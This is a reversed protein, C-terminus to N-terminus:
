RETQWDDHPASTAPEKKPNKLLEIVELEKKLSPDGIAQMESQFKRGFLAFVNRYGPSVQLPCSKREWTKIYVRDPRDEPNMTCTRYFPIPLPTVADNCVARADLLWNKILTVYETLLIGKRISLDDFYYGAKFRAEKSVSYAKGSSDKYTATLKFPTTTSDAKKPKLKVVIISGKSGNADTPSPFLTNVYLLRGTSRNAEPSGYVGEIEFAESDLALQLDFVLPSVMYDFEEDLRKKFSEASHISYYNAGRTKSVREVLDTNFDVGVGIFTTYIGRKAAKDVMGFLGKESLEGRNPMADTIFIIRNDYIQSDKLAEGYSEFLKVGERYGASWDTGGRPELALIHKKIADMDTLAVKRLPKALYATSDFLVVGLSDDARLHSVMAALSERAIAMKSRSDKEVKTGRGKGYYYQNFPASMSGSIDLVVVINRKRKTFYDPKVNSELAVSLYYEQEDTFLNKQRATSYSPCFLAECRKVSSPPQFYHRYFVGEYTISEYKPLYGNKLNDYFTNTDKAGGVALGLSQTVPMAAPAFTPMVMKKMIHRSKTEVSPATANYEWDDVPHPPKQKQSMAWLALMTVSLLLFIRMQSRKPYIMYYM